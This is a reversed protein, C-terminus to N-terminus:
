CVDAAGEQPDQDAELATIIRQLSDAVQQNMEAMRAQGRAEAASIIQLTQQQQRRHGPLFEATTIFLPCTLCANAHQCRRVLPLGCYGNPLAQVARSLRQKAWAAEALPGDPDLVVTDGHIDVKRAREWHRRITADSLRAYHATMQHSDHDLIRRVVEQPVDRNILRTGLTHRWQHPTLHVLQGHEDRIDCRELWRSLADRYTNAAIPQHGGLNMNPRPLLVPAGDPWRQLVRQQQSSIEAQLEDDIPVLAERKMKHNSYRLYPAGDRDAVVCTFPLKLADSIRLGCRMLILTILRYAPNDWRHLNGPQELQAMVHDALARPLQEPLRPYDEPYFVAGGPLAPDWGHQRIARLFVNLASIHRTHEKRGGLEHHLDALYRELLPRDVRALSGAAVGPSGLFASFRQIVRVASDADSISVGTSLRWRIWRKALDRLWPQTIKGFDLITGRETIGLNRPRWRDRPYELDWGAGFALQEVRRYADLTFARLGAPAQGPRLSLRAWYDEPRDLLCAVGAAALDRAFRHVRVPVLQSRAEDRRCQLAYQVELRLRGPLCRLDIYEHGPGPDRCAAIFDEVDARGGRHWRKHHSHCFVSTPKAWLTCYSVRCTAPAPSPPSAATHWSALDPRGARTWRQFHQYCLGQGALAYDCGAVRCGPLPSHGTWGPSTTAAFVAPDPKGAMMWRHSHSWCMQRCRAPRDCEPVACPPGGFVPDRPDFVLVERRFEPRIVALLKELLGASRGAQSITGSAATV